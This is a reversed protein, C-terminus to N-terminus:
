GHSVHYTRMAFNAISLDIEVGSMLKQVYRSKSRAAMSLGSGTVM